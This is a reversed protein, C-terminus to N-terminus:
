EKGILAARLSRATSVITTYAWYGIYAAAACTIITIM